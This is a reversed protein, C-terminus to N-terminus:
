VGAVNLNRQMLASFWDGTYSFGILNLFHNWCKKIKVDFMVKKDLYTVKGDWDLCQKWVTCCQLTMVQINMDRYLIYILTHPLFINFHYHLIIVHVRVHSSGEILWIGFLFPRSFSLILNECLSVSYLQCQKHFVCKIM